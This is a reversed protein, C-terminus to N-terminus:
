PTAANVKGSTDPISPSEDNAERTQNAIIRTAEVDRSLWPAAVGAL